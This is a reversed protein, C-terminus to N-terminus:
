LMHLGPSTSLAHPVLLRILFFFILADTKTPKKRPFFILLMFSSYKLLYYDLPCCTTVSTTHAHVCKETLLITSWGYNPRVTKQKKTVKKHCDLTFYVTAPMKMKM